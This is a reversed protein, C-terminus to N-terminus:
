LNDKLETRQAHLAQASKESRMKVELHPPHGTFTVKNVYLFDEKTLGDFKSETLSTLILNLLDVHTTANSANIGYIKLLQSNARRDKTRLDECVKTYDKKLQEIDQNNSTM